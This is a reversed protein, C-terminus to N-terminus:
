GTAAKRSATSPTKKKKAKNKAAAKDKKAPTTVGKALKGPAPAAKGVKPKRVPRPKPGPKEPAVQLPPTEPHLLAYAPKDGSGQDKVPPYEPRDVKDPWGEAWVTGLFGALKLNHDQQGWAGSLYLVLALGAGTTGLLALWNPGRGRSRGRLHGGRRRSWGSILAYMGYAWLIVALTALRAEGQHCITL